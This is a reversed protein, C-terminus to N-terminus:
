EIREMWAAATDGSQALLDCKTLVLFVPLGGVEARQGRTTEMQRLFRDFEIFDSEVQGTPASADVVLVLTDADNVERALTGEPSHEPIAQRRVLLDNAVRGDCDIFVAGVHHPSSKGSETNFPEFDVPYPVVEEATRRSSEEYLLRRLEDLGRSVDILRGHLLHEQAQAAQALAGLLSSKGAAPLGFLVISLDEARVSAVANLNSPQNM